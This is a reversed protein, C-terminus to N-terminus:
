DTGKKIGEFRSDDVTEETGKNNDSTPPTQQDQQDRAQTVINQILTATLKYPMEQLCQLIVNAEQETFTFNM